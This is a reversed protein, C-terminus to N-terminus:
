LNEFMVSYYLIYSLISLPAELTAQNQAFLTPYSDPKSTQDDVM